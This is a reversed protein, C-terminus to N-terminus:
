PMNILYFEFNRVISPTSLAVSSDSKLRNVKESFEQLCLPDKWVNFRWSGWLRTNQKLNIEIRNSLIDKGREIWGPPKESIRDDRRFHCSVQCGKVTDRVTGKWDSRCRVLRCPSCALLTSVHAETRTYRRVNTHILHIPARARRVDRARTVRTVRSRVTSVGVHGFWVFDRNKSVSRLVPGNCFDGEGRPWADSSESWHTVQSRSGASRCVMLMRVLASDGTYLITDRLANYGRECIYSEQFIHIVHSM